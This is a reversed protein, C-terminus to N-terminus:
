VQRTLLAIRLPLFDEVRIVRLIVAPLKDEAGVTNPFWAFVLHILPLGYSYITEVRIVRRMVAPLFNEAGVPILVFM